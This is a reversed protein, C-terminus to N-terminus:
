RRTKRVRRVVGMLGAGALVITTPEPVTTAAPDFHERGSYTTVGTASATIASTLTVSYPNITPVFAPGSVVDSFAAGNFPGVSAITYSTSFPTNNNSGSATFLVSAGAGSGALTGGASLTFGPFALDYGTQTVQVTPTGGGASSTADISNLDLM